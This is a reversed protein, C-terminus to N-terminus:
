ELEFLRELKEREERVSSDAIAAAQDHLHQPFEFTMIEGDLVLATVLMGGVVRRDLMTYPPAEFELRDDPNSPYEASSM